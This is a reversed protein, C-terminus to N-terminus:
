KLVAKRKSAIKKALNKGMVKGGETNPHLGDTYSIGWSATEVVTVYKLGKAADKIDQAHRQKLPIMAMIYAKPHDSHLKTLVKRYESTFVSGSVDVDNTGHEVVIM